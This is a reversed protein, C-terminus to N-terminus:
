YALRMRSSFRTRLRSHTPRALLKGTVRNIYNTGQQRTGAGDLLLGAADTVGTTPTGVITLRYIGSLPLRHSPRLTVAHSVSDYVASVISIARAKPNGGRQMPDAAVLRYNTQAQASAADMPQSFTIVLLTPQKHFGFRKVGLVVPPFQLEFAGIDPAAGQPRYTGRQDTTVDPVAVGANIAPSGAMLSQTMTPGGHDALPGLMPNTRILDTQKDTFDPADSFLNHGLSQFVGGGGGTVTVGGVSNLITDVCVIASKETSLNAIAM